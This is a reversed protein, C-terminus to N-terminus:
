APVNESEIANSSDPTAAEDQQPALVFGQPGIVWQKNGDLDHEESLYRVFGQAAEEAKKLDAQAQAINGQLDNFHRMQAKTWRHEEVQTATTMNDETPQNRRQNRRTKSNQISM